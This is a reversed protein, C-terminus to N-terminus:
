QLQTADKSHYHRHLRFFVASGQKVAASTSILLPIFTPGDRATGGGVADPNAGVSFLLFAIGRISPFQEKLREFAVRLLNESVHSPTSV